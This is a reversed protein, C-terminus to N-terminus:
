KSMLKKTLKMHRGFTREKKRRDQSSMAFHESEKRLKLYNEYRQPSLEGRKLAALVACGPENLHTCDDFRCMDAFRVMDDFTAELGAEAGTMGFERMGPTDILLGGGELLILQRRTTTHTGEGTGSVEATRFAKRGLLLNMLTTKGVGSSGLLCCTRGPLLYRRVDGLGQCTLNSVAIVPASTANGVVGLLRALEEPAALDAKTLLVVAELGGEAVMVLTRELRKPNFDYQCSQVIFATELNAAIMQRGSGAGPTKRQLSTRRPLVQHIIAASHENYQRILVWDGVCPLEAPDEISFTLRGAVEAPIEREGDHVMCSGRDVATVRAYDFGDRAVDKGIAANWYEFGLQNLSMAIRAYLGGGM